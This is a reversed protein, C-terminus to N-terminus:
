KADEIKLPTWVMTVAKRSGVEDHGGQWVAFGVFTSDGVPLVSAGERKLPRTIVVNWENNAWVGGGDAAVNEIVSSTGFGEALLEDVGKKAYSQPNGAARGYSYVERKSEDVDHLDAMDPFEMPYMDVNMNPYLDKITRKGKDRDLQYMARWHYIHVPAGKAGMFIPPPNKHDKVPFQLAVADSYEGLHGAGSNETDAWRLAFAIWDKDHIARVFVQTTNATAPRPVIMPQAMLAIAEEKADKFADLAPAKTLDVNVPRAVIEAALAASGPLAASLLLFRFRRFM